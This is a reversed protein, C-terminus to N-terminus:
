NMKDGLVEDGNAECAHLMGLKEEKKMLWIEDEDKHSCCPAAVEEGQFTFCKLITLIRGTRKSPYQRYFVFQSERM